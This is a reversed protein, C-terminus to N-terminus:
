HQVVVKLVSQSDSGVVQIYYTGNSLKNWGDVAFTNSGTAVQVLKSMVMKGDSNMVRLTLSGAATAQLKINTYDTILTPMVSVESSKDNLKVVVVNSITSNDDLDYEVVRYYVLDNVGSPSNSFLYTNSAASNAQYPSTGIETFNVGDTSEQWTYHSVREEGKAVLTLKVLGSQQNASLNLDSVPLVATYSLAYDEVEGNSAKGNPTSVEADTSGIRFRGFKTNSSRNYTFGSPFTITFSQTGSGSPVTVKTSKEAADFVGNGNFDIYGYIYAPSGSTNVAKITTSFNGSVYGGFSTVTLGNDAGNADDSNAATSGTPDLDADPKNTGLYVTVNTATPQVIHYAPNLVGSVSEYIVPMDGFDAGPSVFTSTFDWSNLRDGDGVSNANYTSTPCNTGVYSGGIIDWAGTTNAYLFANYAFTADNSINNGNSNSTAIGFNKGGSMIATQSVLKTTVDPWAGIFSSSSEVFEKVGNDDANGDIDYARLWLMHSPIVNTGAGTGSNYTGKKILQFHFKVYSTTSKSNPVSIIPQFRAATGGYTSTTNNDLSTLVAGNHIDTISVICDLTDNVSTYLYKANLAKDTGSKLTYTTFSLSLQASAQQLGVALFVLLTITLKRKLLGKKGIVHFLSTTIAKENSFFNIPFLHKSKTFNPKM